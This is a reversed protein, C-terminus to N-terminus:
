QKIKEPNVLMDWVAAADANIHISKKVVLGKHMKKNVLYLNKYVTSFM